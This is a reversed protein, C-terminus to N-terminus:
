KTIEYIIYASRSICAVIEETIKIVAGALERSIANKARHKECQMFYRTINCFRRRM